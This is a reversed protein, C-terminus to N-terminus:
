SPLGAALQQLLLHYMHVPRSAFSEVLAPHQVVFIPLVAAVVPM